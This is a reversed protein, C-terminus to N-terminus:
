DPAVPCGDTEGGRMGRALGFISLLLAVFAVLAFELGELPLFTLSATALVVRRSRNM